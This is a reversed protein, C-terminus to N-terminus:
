GMIGWAVLRSRCHCCFQGTKGRVCLLTRFTPRAGDLNSKEIRSRSSNASGAAGPWSVGRLRHLSAKGSWVLSPACGFSNRGGWHARRSFDVDWKRFASRRPRPSKGSTHLLARSACTRTPNCRCTRSSSRGSPFHLVARRISEITEGLPSRLLIRGDDWRRQDFTAPKLGTRGLVEAIGLRHLIRSANPGIRIGAGVEELAWAQEYVQVDFGARLLLTTATLGGIGGGIIAVSARRLIIM